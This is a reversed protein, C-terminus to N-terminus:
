TKYFRATPFKRFDADAIMQPSKERLFSSIRLSTRVITLHAFTLLKSHERMESLKGELEELIEIFRPDKRLDIM